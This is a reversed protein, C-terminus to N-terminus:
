ARMFKVPDSVAFGHSVDDVNGIQAIFPTYDPTVM